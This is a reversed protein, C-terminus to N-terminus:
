CESPRGYLESIARVAKDLTNYRSLRTVWYHDKRRPDYFAIGKNKTIITEDPLRLLHASQNEGMSKTPRSDGDEHVSQRQGPSIGAIPNPNVKEQYPAPSDREIRDVITKAFRIEVNETGKLIFHYYNETEWIRDSQEVTGDKLVIRDAAAISCLM